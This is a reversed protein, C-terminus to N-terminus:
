KNVVVVLVKNGEAGVELNGYTYFDIEKDTVSYKKRTKAGPPGFAEEVSKVEFPNALHLEAPVCNPTQRCFAVRAAITPDSKMVKDFAEDMVKSDGGGVTKFLSVEGVGEEKLKELVLTETSPKAAPKPAECGNLLIVALSLFPWMNRLSANSM